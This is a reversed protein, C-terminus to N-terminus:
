CSLALILANKISFLYCPQRKYVASSHSLMSYATIHTMPQHLSFVNDEANKKHM